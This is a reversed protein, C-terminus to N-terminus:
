YNRALTEGQTFYGKEDVPGYKWFHVRATKTDDDICTETLAEKYRRWGEAKTYIPSSISCARDDYDHSYYDVDIRYRVKHEM